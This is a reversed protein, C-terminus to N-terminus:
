RLEGSFKGWRIVMAALIGTFLFIAMSVAAGYGYDGSLYQRFAYLSLSTTKGGPGGGTLVYILDFIRIADISRFLLAVMLVPKLLPLTIRIFQQFPSAGDIRAQQYLSVPILSLGALLIITMFPVTKWVDSIVLSIFAYQPTGLWNQPSDMLGLALFIKNLIGSEHSFMLEWIRASVTIPIVWPIIMLLRFFGKFPLTRNLLLAFPLGIILELFVSVLVFVLTFGSSQWFHSDTLLRQYNDWGLFEPRLFTVDRFFSGWLTALIPIGAFLIVLLLVPTNYFFGKISNSNIRNM